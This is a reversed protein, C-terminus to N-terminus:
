RENENTGREIMFAYGGQEWIPPQASTGTTISHERRREGESWESNPQVSNPSCGHWPMPWVHTQPMDKRKLQLFKPVGYQEVDQVGLSPAPPPLLIYRHRHPTYMAAGIAKERQISDTQPPILTIRTKAANGPTKNKSNTFVGDSQWWVLCLAILIICNIKM